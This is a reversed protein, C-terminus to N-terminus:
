GSIGLIRGSGADSRWQFRPHPLQLDPSAVHFSADDAIFPPDFQVMGSERLTLTGGKVVAPAETAITETAAQTVAPAETAAVAETAAITAAPAETTTQPQCATFLMSGAVLLVFLMWGFRKM